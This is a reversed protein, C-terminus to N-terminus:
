PIPKTNSCGQFRLLCKMTQDGAHKNTGQEQFWTNSSRRLHNRICVWGGGKPPASSKNGVARSSWVCSLAKERPPPPAHEVQKRPTPDTFHTSTKLTRTKGAYCFFRPTQKNKRNPSSRVQKCLVSECRVRSEQLM